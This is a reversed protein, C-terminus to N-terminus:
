RTRRVCTVRMARAVRLQRLRAFLVQLALADNREARLRRAGRMLHPRRQRRDRQDGVFQPM